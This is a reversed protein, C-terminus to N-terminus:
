PKERCPPMFLYFFSADTRLPSLCIFPSVSILISVLFYLLLYPHLFLCFLLVFFVIFFHTKCTLVTCCGERMDKIHFHRSCTWIGNQCCASSADKEQRVCSTLERNLFSNCMPLSLPLGQAKATGMDRRRVLKIEMWLCLSLEIIGKFLSDVNALRGFGIMHKWWGFLAKPFHSVSQSLHLNKKKTHQTPSLTSCCESPPHVPSLPTDSHICATHICMYIYIWPLFQFELTIHPFWHRIFHTNAVFDLANHKSSAYPLQKCFLKSKQIAPNECYPRGCYCKSNFDTM